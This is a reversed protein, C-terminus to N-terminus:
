RWASGALDPKPFVSSAAQGATAIVNSLGDSLVLLDKRARGSRGVDASRLDVAELDQRILRTRM